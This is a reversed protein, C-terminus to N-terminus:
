GRAPRFVRRISYGVTGQEYVRVSGTPDVVWRHDGLGNVVRGNVLPIWACVPKRKKDALDQVAQETYFKM